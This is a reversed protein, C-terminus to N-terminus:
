TCPGEYVLLRSEVRVCRTYASAGFGRYPPCRIPEPQRTNPAAIARYSGDTRVVLALDRRQAIFLNVVLEDGLLALPWRDTPVRWGRLEKGTSDIEVVREAELRPDTPPIRPAQVSAVAGCPHDSIRLGALESDPVSQRIWYTLPLGAARYTENLLRAAAAADGPLALVFRRWTQSASDDQGSCPLPVVLATLLAPICRHM